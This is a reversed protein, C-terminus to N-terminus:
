ANICITILTLIYILGVYGVLPAFHLLGSPGMHHFVVFQHHNSGFLLREERECWHHHQPQPRSIRSEGLGAPCVPCQVGERRGESGHIGMPRQSEASSDDDLRWQTRHRHQGHTIPQALSRSVLGMGCCCKHSGGPVPRPRGRSGPPAARCSGLRNAVSQDQKQVLVAFSRRVIWPSHRFNSALVPQGSPYRLGHCGSM